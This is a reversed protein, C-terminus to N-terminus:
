ARRGQFSWQCEGNRYRLEATGSVIQGEALAGEAPQAARLAGLDGNAGVRGRLAHTGFQITAEGNSVRLRNPLPAALGCAAPGSVLWSLGNYAGDMTPPASDPGCAGLALLTAVALTTSASRM